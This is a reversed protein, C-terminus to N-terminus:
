NCGGKKDTGLNYGSEQEAEDQRVGGVYDIMLGNIRDQRPKSWKAYHKRVIEPTNGLCSGVLQFPGSHTLASRCRIITIARPDENDAV